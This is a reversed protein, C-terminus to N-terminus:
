YQVHSNLTTDGLQHDVENKDVTLSTMAKRMQM